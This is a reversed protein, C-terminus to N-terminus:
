NKVLRLCHIAVGQDRFGREFNTQPYDADHLWELERFEERTEILIRMHAFYSADDTKIRLEGGPMLAAAAATLFDANVLRRPWHRRKPWPDPFALHLVSVSGHPLLYQISYAIEVRLLRVNTLGLRAAKECTKRVRGYLREIGLFNREPFRRAMELLFAGPGSGVDVELPADRSFLATPDLPAFYDAPVFEM